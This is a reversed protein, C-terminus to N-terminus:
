PSYNTTMKLIKIFPPTIIAVQMGPIYLSAARLHRYLLM